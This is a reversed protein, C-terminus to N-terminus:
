HLSDILKNLLTNVEPDRHRLREIKQVAHLVTTHHKGGFLKGIAPLSAHTLERCLYMAIHRPYSIAHSNTKHKLQGPTLGFHEAVCRLIMEATVKREPPAHLHRLAQEAMALTIHSRQHLASMLALKAVAGELERVSCRVRTALFVRVDQSLTLGEARAKSDVIALRTELDPPQLEATLGWELRSRLPEILGTIERPAADASIVIQKRRDHLENFTHFFEEQTREKGALVQIDDVLLVDASRYYRHFQTMRHTTICRIMDNMFRESPTYVVKLNPQRDHIYRGIAKLLHTKGVGDRGYLVLPNYTEGPAEAVTRAAAQAVRNSSGVIFTDFTYSPHFCDESAVTSVAVPDTGESAPPKGDALAPLLEFDIRRIQLRLERIAEQVLASYEQELWAKAAENPVAIRLSDGEQERLVTNAVWNRYSAKSLRTSLREKILEWANSNAALM